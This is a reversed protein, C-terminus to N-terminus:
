IILNWSNALTIILAAVRYFDMQSFALENPIQYNRQLLPNVHKLSFNACKLKYVSMNQVQFCEIM